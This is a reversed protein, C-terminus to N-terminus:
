TQYIKNILRPELFRNLDATIDGVLGALVNEPVHSATFSIIPLDFDTKLVQLEGRELESVIAAKPVACIGFGIRALRIMAGLSTSTTMDLTREADPALLARIERGPRTHNAFTLIRELGIDAQSWDLRQDAMKPCAAFVMEFNCIEHNYISAESVPGMLFALDIERGVLANRLSNTSDVTLDFSLGKRRAGLEALFDPLFTSVITESAGMRITQEIGTTDAFAALVDQELVVLRESYSYLRRGAATLEAKRQNRYFVESGLDGELIQIRATIAPQTLNLKESAARFSGLTVIWYFTDLNRIRM